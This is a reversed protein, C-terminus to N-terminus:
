VGTVAPSLVGSIPTAMCTNRCTNSSLFPEAKVLFLFGNLVVFFGRPTFGRTNSLNLTHLLSQALLGVVAM